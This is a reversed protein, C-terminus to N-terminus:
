ICFIENKISVDLLFRETIGNEQKTNTVSCWVMCNKSYMLYRINLSKSQLSSDAVGAEENAKRQWRATPGSQLPKDLRILSNVENELDFQSSM